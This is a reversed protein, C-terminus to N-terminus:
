ATKMEQAILERSEIVRSLIKIIEDHHKSGERNLAAYANHESIGIMAGAAKLDGHKKKRLIETKSLM